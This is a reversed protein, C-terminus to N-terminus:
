ASAVLGPINSIITFAKVGSGPELIDFTTPLDAAAGREIPINIGSSTFAKPIAIRAYNTGDLLDAVLAFEPIQDPSPPSYTAVGGSESFSGGGFAMEFTKRNWERFTCTFQAVFDTVVKRVDFFSQHVPIGDVTRDTTIATGEPTTYGVLKFAADLHTNGTEPGVTPMTTGVPATYLHFNGAVVVNGPDENAM